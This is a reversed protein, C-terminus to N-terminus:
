KPGALEVAPVKLHRDFFNAIAHFVHKQSVPGSLGHKGGPYTMLDFQIGKKQMADMLRTSNTFLVNDDAMGHVLLLPSRLGDLQAFVGSQAYGEPNDKPTRLYHETYHTDYLSWDTVPAVAVGAAIRDSAAALLRVTMFGGYSWGFVGIRKADVFSQSRLWDIGTLQDQVENRGLNGYIVDTFARERRASGRNDLAFVVYGQQAMYQEFLSAWKRGVVQEGPGGYTSLFVPYRKSADFNLPKRLEYHLTQGDVAKLTGYETKVHSSLYPYYPHHPTLANEEVWAVRAGDPKYIGTQPPTDPDSFTDIFSEGSESFKAEHWGDGQTIRQPANANSGDLRLAYVQKDTVVDRNSSVYAIGAKEDVALLHDIGWEGASIPYFVKGDLGMLYLHKRGSRESTWIFAKQKKLFRPEDLINVWTSSQECVVVRPQLAAVAAARLELQKQNRTQVQFFVQQSDLSWDARVLYIDKETGLPVPRIVGTAPSVVALSVRVNPQGAAPYRQETVDTRDAQVEFRKQIAVPSEDFKKFAIASDDPAWWYGSRQDMEEQAVFEAEANHVTGKGDRTLRKEKGTKLDVVCLNQDRVFSVYRGKPSIKPDLLDGSAVKRPQDPKNVDVLYLSGGLPILMQQGDPSWSYSAIGKFSASRDRERRAQEADSLKEQPALVTSNVLRRMAQDKLNFEWLDLQFQNEPRGKLFTVRAGDPAIQLGRVRPGSLAPDSYIRDITLNEAGVPLASLALLVFLLRRM